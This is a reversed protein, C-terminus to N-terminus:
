AYNSSSNATEFLSLQGAAHRRTTPAPAPNNAATDLTAAPATAAEQPCPQTTVTSGDANGAPAASTGRHRVQAAHRAIESRREAPLKLARMAAMRRGWAPGKVNRWHHNRGDNNRSAVISAPIQAAPDRVVYILVGVAEMVRGFTTWGLKKRARRALAKAAHGSGIFAEADLTARSMGIQECYDAVIRSLDAFSRAAGLVDAPDIPPATTPRRPPTRVHGATPQAAGNPAAANAEQDVRSTM